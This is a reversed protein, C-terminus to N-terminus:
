TTQDNQDLTVEPDIWTNAEGMASFIRSAIFTLSQQDIKRIYQKGELTVRLECINEISVVDVILNQTTYIKEPEKNM